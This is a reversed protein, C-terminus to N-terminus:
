VRGMNHIHRYCASSIANIQREMTLFTDFDMELNMVSWAVYVTKEGVQLQTRDSVKVLASAETRDNNDKRPKVYAQKCEGTCQYRGLLSGSQNFCRGM